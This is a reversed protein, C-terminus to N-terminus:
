SYIRVCISLEEKATSSSFFLLLRRVDIHNVIPALHDVTPWWCCGDVKRETDWTSGTGKSHSAHGCHVRIHHTSAAASATTSHGAISIHIAKVIRTTGETMHNTVHHTALTHSSM